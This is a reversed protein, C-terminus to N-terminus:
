DKVPSAVPKGKEVIYTALVKAPGSGVNKGDHVVGAPVFFTEGAKVTRPPQGAVQLELTGELVYGLEEGPHTHKGAVGGPVFEAVVQVAHRESMALNQDQLMKRTFGPQQAYLAAVLGLSLVISGALMWQKKM